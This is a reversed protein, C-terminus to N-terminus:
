VSLLRNSDIVQHANTIVLQMAAEDSQLGLAVSCKRSALKDLCSVQEALGDGNVGAVM